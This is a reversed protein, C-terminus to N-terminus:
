GIQLQKQLGFLFLRRMNIWACRAIAQLTHKFLGRYRTKNNRTHFCYQFITAEVNNRKRRKEYPISKIEQRTRAKEIHETTFYRWVLNGNKDTTKIKWQGDKVPQAITIEGTNKDTVELVGDGSLNLEFRPPKGQIGNAIFEFGQEEDAALKRNEESQYAGDAHVATVKNGTVEATNKIADELFDNDAAGAGKISVDTIINPKDEEDTTETINTSYGKTKKGNKGRYQADEDHPNQLSKASILKKERVTVTQTDEDKEYQESFVRRLLHKEEQRCHTLIYDIAVGLTHLRQNISGSDTKYVTRKADEELFQLLQERMMQDEVQLAEEKSYEKLFTAHIVEYRSYWGINSSILKSDMRVTTGSIKYDIVQEKTIQKFCKDFLNIGKEEEYQCLRRRFVYYTQISPCQEDLGIMGLARRYLLNYRCQEYLQEDSCGSGEKLICMAVLMSISANPRGDRKDSRGETYLPKFISEDVRATVETYFKNHWATSDDYQRSERDCLLGSPSNFMDFQKTKNSKKFM